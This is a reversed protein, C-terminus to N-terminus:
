LKQKLNLDKTVKLYGDTGVALGVALKNSDNYKMYISPDGVFGRIAGTQKAEVMITGIPGQGNIQVVVKEDENKLMKAMIGSVSVVRGLAALSTPMCNHVLRMENCLETTNVCYIRVSDNLALAKVLKNKM